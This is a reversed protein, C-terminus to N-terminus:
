NNYWNESLDGEGKEFRDVLERLTITTTFFRERVNNIIRVQVKSNGNIPLVTEGKPIQDDISKLGEVTLEEVYLDCENNWKEGIELKM